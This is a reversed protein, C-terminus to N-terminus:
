KKRLKSGFGKAKAIVGDLKGTRYAWFGGAGVLLLAGVLILGRNEGSGFGAKQTSSSSSQGCTGTQIQRPTCGGSSTTTRQQGCTGTKIQQPTCTGSSASSSSASTNSSGSSGSSSSQSVLDSTTTIGTGGLPPCGDAILKSDMAGSLFLEKRKKRYELTGIAGARGADVRRQADLIDKDLSAITVCGVDRKIVVNSMGNSSQSSTTSTTSSNPNTPYCVGDICIQDPM